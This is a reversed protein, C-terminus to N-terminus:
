DDNDFRFELEAFFDNGILLGGLINALIGVGIALPWKGRLNERAIRRYDAAFM